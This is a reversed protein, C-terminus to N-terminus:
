QSGIASVSIGTTQNAIFAKEGTVLVIEDSAVTYTPNTLVVSTVGPILRVTEVISSLDISEGIPNSNILAYVSSQIQSTIQAFSVGINTRIALAVSVNKLLPERIFIDCGAASIGPYTVSDRPDGYIVRNAQGILGTDYNYADIGNVIEVPFNLKGLSTLAVGASLDIKEYQASTNFVINEFNSTGPQASVYAVQKYGTYKIGEQVSLSNSNGALNNNYQQSIVGSIVITDPNLVQLIKYTGANGAGLVNGNVVLKDGPVTAEYQFFQIQPRNISFTVASIGSQPVAAPNIVTLFPEQGKQTVVFTFAIPMSADVPSNTAAAVTATVTVVNTLAVYSTTMAVLASLATNTESAVTAASDSNNITVEIGTFGVPAPDTNSGGSVNYWVYYKNANGGNYIEFYDGAGSSSFASGPPFTFQVVQQQSPGSNTVMFSGQNPSSFGGGFTVIDGPLTAGLSPATGTGTWSLTEMGNSTTVNFVTSSDYGVSITNPLCIVEEEISNTNEYWISNNNMRVVRYSGQNLPSFPSSLIVTDGESVSSTSVFTTPSGATGTETVANPNSVSFSSGNVAEVFFTGNNGANVFGSTTILDGISLESFNASGSAITYTGTSSVNVTYSGANNFNLSSSFDPSSGVGNWSLCTLLGQKEVRFTLGQIRTYNRPSGFYLQNSEQNLLTVTSEGSIPTNSLVTVSTNNSIGTDKNQYNQAQLRFWQGSAVAQAAISNASIVMQNNGLLEGSTLVPVVYQNGSGGVVQISGVSGFTNTALQLRTGRDSVEVTGVTTFGTVALINWLDKVQDMTTPVLIVEEGANFAYGPASAYTLPEKFTFQPSGSVNSSFIWNLGDLLYYHKTTFGTSEYTSMSIIGSGDGNVITSTVYQTLNANVYTNIAAATTPSSAYFSMGSPVGTVVNSQAVATGTPVQVSFSTSTPTFGVATSIRFTGTNAVNFGTSPSITVYAGSSLTGPLLPATGTGNYTYTVQDIGASPTNPTITVNWQTTATTSTPIANGSILSIMVSVNNAATLTVTSSIPQNASTPYVYSINIAEGSHGWVASRYLLSTNPNSSSVVYKAQLLAKYNAFFDSPIDFNTAFSATPGTATDYANFSYNNTAYTTNTLAARFLPMTYTEGVTNNDVIAVVTDNYGFDLPNAVFYRDNVRLRRVDPYVPLITIVDGALASMQVTELSPQEDDILGAGITTLTTGGVITTVVKFDQSNNSYVAGASANASTVTFVYQYPTASTAYSSFTITADGSGAVLTLTGSAAPAIGYPNLFGILENPPFPPPLTSTFNTVFSYPPEAYSDASITSHFFLPLEAQESTTEQNALLAAQSVSNMGSTFGLLAGFTDQTAVTIQGTTDLTNTVVTLNTNDFVAFTLQDTQAQLEAAVVYLTSTGAPVTFKQPVNATRVVVFGQIYAANTVPTAATYEAVTVEIDLTSGTQAHVRGELDDTAPIETSWVIVYDGPIVNSFSSSSNSTYRIINPAVKSVTLTSGGQITPIIKADTDIAIWVHADSTLTVSGSSVTDAQIHAQTIPTGASLSDNKVLADVLQIQATNRDLIYDSAVGQSTLDNNSIMGKAILSTPNSGTNVVTISARNIPGLNSTLEITSGVISATIGTINENLVNVWSQLSNSYSLTTYTGETVFMANTLTYTIPATGDVALSLTEGSALTSSWLSQPNTFISATTGDEILLEGNKYLRLTEAKQAPFQLITNADIVLSSAPTTIQMVNTVEDEPRIVVYTGSGATVAEFNLLTDGNISACVEYATASGPNAFDTAQFTHNYTIDGVVVSLVEGGNLDFPEAAISQLLAKTVSTQTGGTVLQFFKEGGLASNVITEIAVGVHTAELIGGNDIYVITSSSSNLVNTSVIKDSGQPDQVGQLASEIATVTGLGTSALANKVRVRLQNDTETDQGTTIALPNTVSANPLGAPNGSFESIANAAVNAASGPLLATIPINSITTEGDLITGIQTVSYQIDPTTGIGPSVVITNVPVTRVGGQSLIVSEGINHYKTTPSSLTISYYSGVPTIATYALPGEIDVTGRGIYISGTPPFQTGTSVYITTSGINPPNTGAYITTFIKQFSLDTVTVFGTAVAAGIPPVGYEIALNQLAPGTARDLSFDRLIQFIDGSNRAVMLAVVQFFSTTASGVNLDNIGISAAYSSLANGLLQEYSLPTPLSSSPPM